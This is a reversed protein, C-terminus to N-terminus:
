KVYVKASGGSVWSLDSVAELCAEDRYLEGGMRYIGADSRVTYTKEGDPFVVTLKIKVVDGPDTIETYVDKDGPIPGNGGIYCETRDILDGSGDKRFVEVREINDFDPNIWYKYELTEGGDTTEEYPIYYAYGEEPMLLEADALAEEDITFLYESVFGEAYGLDDFFDVAYGDEASWSYWANDRAVATRTVNYDGDKLEFALCLEGEDSLYWAIDRVAVTNEDGDTVYINQIYSNYNDRFMIDFASKEFVRTLAPPASAVFGECLYIDAHGDTVWGLDDVSATCAEDWCVSWQEVHEPYYAILTTDRDAIIQKTTGDPYHVTVDIPNDLGVIRDYSVTEFDAGLGYGETVLGWDEDEYRMNVWYHEDNIHIDGVEDFSEFETSYNGEVLAYLDATPALFTVSRGMGDASAQYLIGDRLDETYGEPGNAYILKGDELAVNFYYIEDAGGDTVMRISGENELVTKASNAAMLEEWTVATTVQGKPASIGCAALSMMLALVTIFAIVKKM